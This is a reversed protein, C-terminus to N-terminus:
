GHAASRRRAWLVLLVFGVLALPASVGESSCGCGGPADGGSGSGPGPGAGADVGPQDMGADAQMMQPVREAVAGPSHNFFTGSGTHFKQVAVVRYRYTAGAVAASDVFETGTIPEPTLRTEERGDPLDRRYVHYGDTADASATWSLHVQGNEESLEVSPPPLTVFLRLTPDGLLAQHVMHAGYGTDYANKTDNQSDLFAEGFSRMAGLSHLHLYPRAFWASALTHGPSVLAARLLNNSYSWDGFYSGFLAIFGAQPVRTTFDATTGVGNAGDPVGAGCGFALAYGGDQELSDFFTSSSDPDKGLVAAGDRWAARAFAEGNFFGFGDVVLARPALKWEGTRFAHDSDLYRGLLAQADLPAFAPLDATDVRGVALTLPNPYVTPDFKGDGAVNAFAGAGGLDQEDTWEQQLDAYYGDAPWAGEHDPHGDPNLKGSFARPVEGLLLVSRLREDSFAYVTEIRAKVELPSATKPVVERFVRYGDAVLDAELRALKDSLSSASLEDVVVLVAGADDRFPVDIGALVWANGPVGKADSRSILYEFAEGRLTTVDEWGTADSPLSAIKSWPDDVSGRRYITFGTANSMPQWSLRIQGPMAGESATVHPDLDSVEQARADTGVWLGLTALAIATGSRLIRM